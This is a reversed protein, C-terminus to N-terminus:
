ASKKRRSAASRAPARRTRVLKPTRLRDHTRKLKLGRDALAESGLKERFKPFYESEEEKVHHEILEKLLTVKAMFTENSAKTKHIKKILDRVLAHEEFAELTTDEDLEKGVPYLVKEEILAHLEIKTALVDFLSNRTKTARDSTKEIKEFLDEVERHQSKLFEIPDVPEASKLLIPESKM